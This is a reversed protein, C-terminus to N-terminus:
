IKTHFFRWIRWFRCLKLTKLPEVCVKLIHSRVFCFYSMEGMRQLLSNSNISGAILNQPLVVNWKIVAALIIGIEATRKSFSVNRAISREAYIYVKSEFTVIRIAICESFLVTKAPNITALQKDSGYLELRAHGTSNEDFVAGM